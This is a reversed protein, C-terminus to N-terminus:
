RGVMRVAIVVRRDQALCGLVQPNPVRPPCDTMPEEAGQAIIRIRQPDIGRRIFVEAVSRARLQSSLMRREPPGLRDSHGYITIDQVRLAESSVREAFAELRALDHKSLDGLDSPGFPFLLGHMTLSERDSAIPSESSDPVGVDPPRPPEVVAKTSTPPEVATACHETQRHAATLKNDEDFQLPLQGNLRQSQPGHVEILYNWDKVFFLGETSHPHGLLQRVQHKDLGPQVTPM